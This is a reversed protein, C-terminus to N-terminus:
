SGHTLFHKPLFVVFIAQIKCSLLSSTIMRALQQDEDRDLNLLALSLTEPKPRHSHSGCFRTAGLTTLGNRSAIYESLSILICSKM